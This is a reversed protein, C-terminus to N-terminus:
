KGAAFRRLDALQRADDFTGYGVSWWPNPRGARDPSLYRRPWDCAAIACPWSIRPRRIRRPHRPQYMFAACGSSRRRKVYPRNLGDPCGEITFKAPVAAAGTMSVPRAFPDDQELGRCARRAHQGQRHSRRRLPHSGERQPRADYPRGDRCCNIRCGINRWAREIDGVQHRRRTQTMPSTRLRKRRNKCLTSRQNAPGNQDGNAHVDPM